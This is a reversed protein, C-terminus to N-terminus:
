WSLTLVFTIISPCPDPSQRRCTGGEWSMWNRSRDPSVASGQWLPSLSLLWLILSTAPTTGNVISAESLDITEGEGEKEKEAFHQSAVEYDEM